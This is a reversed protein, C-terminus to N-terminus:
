KTSISGIGNERYYREKMQRFKNSLEFIYHQKASESMGRMKEKDALEGIPNIVVGGRALLRCVKQYLIEDEKTDNEFIKRKLVERYQNFVVDTNRGQTAAVEVDNQRKVKVDDWFGNKMRAKAEKAYEKITSM